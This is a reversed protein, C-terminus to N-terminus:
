DKIIKIIYTLPSYTPFCESDMRRDLKYSANFLIGIQSSPLKDKCLKQLLINKNLIDWREEQPVTFSPFNPLVEVTFEFDEIIDNYAFLRKFINRLM